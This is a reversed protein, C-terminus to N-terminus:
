TAGGEAAPLRQRIQEAAVLAAGRAEKQNRAIGQELLVADESGLLLNRRVACVLWTYMGGASSPKRVFLELTGQRLRNQRWPNRVANSM